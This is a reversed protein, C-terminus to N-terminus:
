LNEIFCLNTICLPYMGTISDGLLLKLDKQAPDDRARTLDYIKENYIEFLPSEPSSKRLTAQLGIAHQCSAKRRLAFAHTSYITKVKVDFKHVDISFFELLLGRSHQDPYFLRYGISFDQQITSKRWPYMKIFNEPGEPFACLICFVCM